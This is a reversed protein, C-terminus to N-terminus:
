AAFSLDDQLRYATRLSDLGAPRGTVVLSGARAALESLFALGASDIRTAATLDLRRVGSLQALAPPWLTAIAARELAGSFVLADDERTMSAPSKMADHDRDHPAHAVAM